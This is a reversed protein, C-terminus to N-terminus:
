RLVMRFKYKAFRGIMMYGLAEMETKTRTKAGAKRAVMCGTRPDVWVPSAKTMGMEEWNTAKYIQGTHGQWTDAYTVLCDFKGDERIKKISRGILYSALNTPMDPVIVLRSLSLVRTWDGEPFTAQAAHRTPPIWIAVGLCNIPRAKLFLGHRYTATNSTGHAYHFVRCLEQAIDLPVSEVMYDVKRLHTM